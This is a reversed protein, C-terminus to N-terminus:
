FELLYNFLPLFGLNTETKVEGTKPIYSLGLSNMQNYANIIDIYFQHSHKKSNMKFGIRIDLRHYTAFQLTNTLSDIGEYQRKAQSKASDIPTYWKGGAVNFKFGAILKSRGSKGLQFEKGSLLNLNYRGNFETNRWVLDSARYKSMFLSGTLLFYFNKSFYKELTIDIGTNYGIGKNELQAPFTFNFTAGQNLPTYGSPIIEQPINFLHQYYIEVKTHLTQNFFYDMGVVFHHSKNFGTNFNPQYNEGLSNRSQLFYIYMPQLNSHLGYGANLQLKRNLSYSLGLRPELSKSHNILFDIFHLGANIKFADTPTYNWAVFGQILQADNRFEAENYWINQDPYFNSDVLNMKMETLIFGAKLTNSASLKKTATYNLIYKDVTFHNRYTASRTLHDLGITDYRSYSNNLNLGLSIKHLFTKSINQQFSTGILGFRSGFHIDRGARGYTWKTTDDGEIIAIDSKGGLGFFSLQGSKKIPFNLKFNVDQYSPTGSTGFNIGLKNM